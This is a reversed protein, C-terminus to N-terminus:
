SKSAGMFVRLFEVLLDQDKRWPALDRRSAQTLDLAERGDREHDLILVQHNAGQM